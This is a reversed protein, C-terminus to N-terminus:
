PISKIALVSSLLLNDDLSKEVGKDDLLLAIRKMRVPTNFTSSKAKGGAVGTTLRLLGHSDLLECVSVFETMDLGSLQRLACIHTYLDFVTGVGAERIGRLRRLLLCSAMVLKHHLPIGQSSQEGSDIGCIRKYPSGRAADNSQM